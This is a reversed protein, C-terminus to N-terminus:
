FDLKNQLLLTSREIHSQFMVMSTPLYDFITTTQIGRHVQSRVRVIPSDEEQALGPRNVYILRTAFRILNAHHLCVNRMFLSWSGRRVNIM